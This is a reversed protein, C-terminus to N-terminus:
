ISQKTAGKALRAATSFITSIGVVFLFTPFVLDTPTFGNWAAHKLAWYAHGEDGNNNVLIMFGITLGRLVDVSLWREPKVVTHSREVVPLPNPSTM